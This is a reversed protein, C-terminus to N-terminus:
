ELSGFTNTTYSLMCETQEAAYKRTTSANRWTVCCVICSHKSLDSLHHVSFENGSFTIKRANENGFKQQGPTYPKKKLKLV